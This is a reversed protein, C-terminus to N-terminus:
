IAEHWQAALRGVENQGGMRTVEAIFKSRGMRTTKPKFPYDIRYSWKGANRCVHFAAGTSSTLKRRIIIVRISKGSPLKPFITVTNDEFKFSRSNAM